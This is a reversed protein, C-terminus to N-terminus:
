YSVLTKNKTHTNNKQVIHKSHDIFDVTYKSKQGMLLIVNDGRDLFPQSSPCKKRFTIRMAMM